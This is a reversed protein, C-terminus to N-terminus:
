RMCKNIVAKAKMYESLVDTKTKMLKNYKDSLFAEPKLGSARLIECNLEKHAKELTIKCRHYEKADRSAVADKHKKMGLEIAPMANIEKAMKASLSNSGKSFDKQAAKAKAIKQEAATMPVQLWLM